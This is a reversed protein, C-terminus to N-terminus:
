RHLSWYRGNFLSDVCSIKNSTSNVFVGLSTFYQTKYELTTRKAYERSVKEIISANGNAIGTVDTAKIVGSKYASIIEDGLKYKKNANDISIAGTQVETLIMELTKGNKEINKNNVSKIASTLNTVEDKVLSSLSLEGLYHGQTGYSTAVEKATLPREDQVIKPVTPSSSRIITRSSDSEGITVVPASTIVM